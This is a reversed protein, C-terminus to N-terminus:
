NVDDRHIILRKTRQHQRKNTTTKIGNSDVVEVEVEGGGGGGGGVVGGVVGSGSTPGDNGAASVFGSRKSHHNIVACERVLSTINSIAGRSHGINM